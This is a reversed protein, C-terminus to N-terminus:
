SIIGFIEPFAGPRLLVMLVQFINIKFSSAASNM